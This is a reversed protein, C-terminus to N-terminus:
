SEDGYDCHNEEDPDGLKELNILEDAEIDEKAIKGIISNLYKPAIGLGPRKLCLMKENITTGKPIKVKSAISRRLLERNKEESRTLKKIGDGLAKEINRIAMVMEKLEIPELSFSHDPGHLNKDLTFHKEIVSAGLAVAAIPIIIGLTHDSFGTPLNFREKLTVMVRLNVDNFSTPYDSVCHLLIVDETGNENITRLAEEVEELTSMGTSLIIPKKKQAIHRLLPFNTIDGSAIKFAPLGLSDLFDVSRIDFVSFILLIDKKKAYHLLEKIEEEALELKKLMEYQSEQASTKEKQYEAKETSRLVLEDAHFAQFKIADVNADKAVDILKKCLDIDGNHNVGAEAILFAPAGEGIFKNQIKIKKM